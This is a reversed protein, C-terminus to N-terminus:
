DDLRGEWSIADRPCEEICIGCRACLQRNIAFSFAQEDFTIAVDPCFIYCNECLNCHGCHFCREAEEVAQMKSLGSSVEDFNSSRTAAPLEAVRARPSKPFYETNLDKFSVVSDHDGSYDGALYRSISIAGLSAKQLAAFTKGETGMLFIDIGLAARKGSAIAKVVLRSLTTADGGAYVGEMSTRCLYDVKILAGDMEIAGPSFPAEVTEGVAAIVTDVDVMFNTGEVPEPRRRGDKDKRGLRTKMCELKEVRKGNSHIQVPMTLYLIKIGEKEAAKVEKSFAPMEKASRRYMIAVEQVGLRRATRAADIATNGGGIVAVKAGLDVEKGFAVDKLLDLGLIVGNSIEGPINLSMSRCAGTAIFCADYKKVIDEFPTDKGVETNTRVEIGLDIIEGIETDVVGRPLRYAPIGVRPIGGLVPLAEFVTVDHGLIALFYACTMGAPGSGIIAVKRGTKAKKIPKRVANANAYDFVARELANIAVGADFENRNCHTECPHFCVRGCIGPFPNEAKINELAEEFRNSQILSITTQIAEGAPCNAECPPVKNRYVPYREISVKPAEEKVETVAAGALQSKVGHYAEEAAEINKEAAPVKSERIAEALQEISVSPIIAAIAGLVTTNIIPTGSPLHLGHSAAIRRADVTVIRFNGLSSFAEPLEPSNIVLGGGKRVGALMGPEKVISEDMIILYHPQYMKSHVIIQTDSIRVYSEVKEGRRLAGYSAFSQAQYGSKAAADALLKAAVVAGQGGSGIFKIEIM